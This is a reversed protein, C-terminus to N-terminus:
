LESPFYVAILSYFVKMASDTSPDEWSSRSCHDRLWVIRGSSGHQFKQHPGLGDEEKAIIQVLSTLQLIEEDSFVERVGPSVEIRGSFYYDDAKDSEEPPIWTWLSTVVTMYSNAKSATAAQLM